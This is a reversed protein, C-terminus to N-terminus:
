NTMGLFRLSDSKCKSLPMQSITQVKTPDQKLGERTMLHGLYTIKSKAFVRKHKYLKLRYKHLRNFILTLRKIHEEM